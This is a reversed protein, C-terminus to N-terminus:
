ILDGIGGFAKGVLGILWLVYLYGPTYDIFSVREYFGGPGGKALEGAWAQFSGRDVGFGSGPLLVYAIILRLALGLALIVLFAFAADQPRARVRTGPAPM